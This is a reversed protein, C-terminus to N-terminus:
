VHWDQLSDGVLPGSPVHFMRTIQAVTPGAVREGAVAPMEMVSAVKGDFGIPGDPPGTSQAAAAAGATAAPGLCPFKVDCKQGFAAKQEITMRSTNASFSCIGSYTAPAMCLSPNMPVESWDEPCAQNWDQDCSTKCKWNFGCTQALEQRTKISMEAFNYTTACKTESTAPANCFSDGNTGVWGQPCVDSYDRGEICNDNCPWPALCDEAIQQKEAISKGVFSQTKKCAGGYSVPAICLDDAVMSWGDPCKAMWRRECSGDRSETLGHALRNTQQLVKSVEPNVLVLEKSALTDAYSQQFDSKGANQSAEAAVQEDAARVNSGV